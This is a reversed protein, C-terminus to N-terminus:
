KNWENGPGPRKLIRGKPDLLVKSPTKGLEFKEESKALTFPKVVGDVEIDVTLAFAKTEQRIVLTSGEVSVKLRPFGDAEIWQRFWEKLDRKSEAEMATRFDALGSERHACEKAWRRLGADYAPGLDARLMEAVVAGKLYVVAPYEAHGAWCKLLPDDALKATRQIYIQAGKELHQRARESGFRHELYMADAQSALGESLWPTYDDRGVTV